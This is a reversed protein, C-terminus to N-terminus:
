GRRARRSRRRRSAGRLVRTAGEGLLRARSLARISAEGLGSIERLQALSLSRLGEVTTVRALSLSRFVYSRLWGGSARAVSALAEWLEHSEVSRIEPCGLIEFTPAAMALAAADVAERTPNPPDAGPPLKLLFEITIRYTAHGAVPHALAASRSGRGPPSGPSGSSGSALGPSGSASPSPVRQERAIAAIRERFRAMIVADSEQSSAIEMLSSVVVALDLCSPRPRREVESGAARLHERMAWDYVIGLELFTLRDLAARSVWPADVLRVTDLVLDATLRGRPELLRTKM